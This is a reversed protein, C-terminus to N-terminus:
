ALLLLPPMSSSHRRLKPADAPGDDSGTTADASATADAAAAATAATATAATTVNRLAAEDGNMDFLSRAASTQRRRRRQRFRGIM